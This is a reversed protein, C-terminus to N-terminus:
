LHVSSHALWDTLKILAVFIFVTNMRKIMMCFKAQKKKKLESFLNQLYGSKCPLEKVPFTKNQLIKFGCLEM